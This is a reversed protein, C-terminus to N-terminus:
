TIERGIAFSKLLPILEPRVVDVFVTTQKTALDLQINQRIGAARCLDDGVVLLEDINVM